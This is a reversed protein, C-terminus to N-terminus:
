PASGTRARSPTVLGHLLAREVKRVISFSNVITEWGFGGPSIRVTTGRSDHSIGLQASFLRNSGTGVLIADGGTPEPKALPRRAARMGPLVNYRNGLRARLVRAIEDSTVHDQPVTITPM